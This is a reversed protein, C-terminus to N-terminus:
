INPHVEFIISVSRVVNVAFIATEGKGNATLNDELKTCSASRSFSSLVGQLGALAM